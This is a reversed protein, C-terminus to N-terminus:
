SEDDSDEESQEESMENDKNQSEDDSAATAEYGLDEDSMEEQGLKKRASVLLTLWYLKKFSYLLVTNFFPNFSILIRFSLTSYITSKESIKKKYRCLYNSTLLKFEM